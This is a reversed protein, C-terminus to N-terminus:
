VLRVRIIRWGYNYAQSTQPIAPRQGQAAVAETQVESLKGKNYITRDDNTCTYHMEGYFYNVVPTVQDNYSVRISRNLNDYAYETRINRADTMSTLLGKYSVNDFTEDYSLKRTWTSNTTPNAPTNADNTTFPTAKPEVQFEYTLRRLSDYKFYWHQLQGDTGQQVHVLSDQM